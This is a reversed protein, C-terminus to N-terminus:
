RTGIAILARRAYDIPDRFRAHFETRANGCFHEWAEADLVSRLYRATGSAERSALFDAITLHIPYEIEEVTVEGLDAEHLAERLRARDALWDEWPLWQATAARLRERDVLRAVLQDWYERFENDLMSWATVGAKGGPRLVRVMERLGAQYSAVHSLVFGATVRDFAGDAFPLHPLSCAVVTAVGNERAVRLMEVSPDTAVVVTCAAMAAAVVGSGAGVDLTARAGAADMRAALDRAPAAFFLPVGL